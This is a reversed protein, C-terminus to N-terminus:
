EADDTGNVVARLHQGSLRAYRAISRLDTHGLVAAIARDDAGRRKAETAMTHKTGEHLKVARVGAARCAALWGDRLAWHSWRKGTRSNTFAPASPDAPLHTNAWELLENSMPVTRACKTKTPGITASAALSKMAQEVLVSSHEM